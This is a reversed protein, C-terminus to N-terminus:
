LTEGNEASVIATVSDSGFSTTGSATITISGPRTVSTTAEAVGDQEVTDGVLTINGRESTLVAGTDNLTIGSVGISTPTTGTVAGSPDYELSSGKVPSYNTVTFSTSTSTPETLYLTSGSALIIQGASTEIVGQNTVTPGVLAVTGGNDFGSVNDLTSITAGPQVTVGYNKLITSSLDNGSGDKGSSASLILTTSSNNLYLGNDLYQSNGNTEDNPAYFSVTQGNVTGTEVTYSGNGNAYVGCNASSANTSCNTFSNIDYSSAILAHVNIQSSGSFVIGNPNILLVTGEAKIQGQIQSPVGTADIRNLVVWDNGSSTNGASQNFYVTTNKGVNFKYWTAIARQSTQTLTETYTTTGNSSSTTEVPQSINTWLNAATGAATGVRPDVVLGNASLGDTVTSGATALQAATAAAAQAALAAKLTKAATSLDTTVQATTTAAQQAALTAAATA